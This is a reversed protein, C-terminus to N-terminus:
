QTSTYRLWNPAYALRKSARFHHVVAPPTCSLRPSPCCISMYLVAHRSFRIMHNDRDQSGGACRAGNHGCDCRHASVQFQWTQEGGFGKSCDRRSDLLYCGGCCCCSAHRGQGSSKSRRRRTYICCRYLLGVDLGTLDSLIQLLRSYIDECDHM